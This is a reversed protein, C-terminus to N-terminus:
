EKGPSIRFSICVIAFGYMRVEISRGSRSLPLNDFDKYSVYVVPCSRIFITNWFLLICNCSLEWANRKMKELTEDLTCLEIRPTYFVYLNWTIRETWNEVCQGRNISKMLWLKSNLTWIIKRILIMVRCLWSLLDIHFIYSIIWIQEATTSSLSTHDDCYIKWNLCNSLLLRFFDPSWRSEFGHGGRYRQAARGVSSHLWM